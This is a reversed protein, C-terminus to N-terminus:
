FRVEVDAAKIYTSNAKETWEGNKLFQSWTHIEGDKLEYGARTESIGGTNGFVLLKENATDQAHVPTISLLLLMLFLPKVTPKQDLHRIELGLIPHFFRELNFCFSIM